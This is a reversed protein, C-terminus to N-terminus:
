ARREPRRRAASMLARSVVGAGTIRMVVVSAAFALAFTPADLFKTRLLFLAAITGGGVVVHLAFDAFVAPALRSVSAAGTVLLSAALLLNGAGTTLLALALGAWCSARKGAPVLGTVLVALLLASALAGGYLTARGAVRLSSEPRAPRADIPQPSADPARDNV